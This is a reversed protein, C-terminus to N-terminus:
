PRLPCSDSFPHPSAGFPLARTDEGAHGRIRWAGDEEYAVHHIECFWSDIIVRLFAEEAGNVAVLIESVDKDSGKIEAWRDM